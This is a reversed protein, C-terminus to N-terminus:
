IFEKNKIERIKWRDLSLCEVKPPFNAFVVVHPSDMVLTGTSYKSNFIMGDKISELAQYLETKSISSGWTRPLLFLYCNENPCNYVFNLADSAKCPSLFKAFNEIVMRKAFKTKGGNGEKNWIWHITRDDPQDQIEKYLATQWPWFEEITPTDRHTALKRKGWPGAVRTDTKMCYFKLQEKGAASADSITNGCLEENWEISLQKARVRKAMKITGQYHYNHVPGERETMELQIVFDQCKSRLWALVKAPNCFEELDWTGNALISWRFSFVYCANQSDEKTM